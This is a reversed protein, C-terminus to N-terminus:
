LIGWEVNVNMLALQTPVTKNVGETITMVNTSMQLTSDDLMMTTLVVLEGACSKGDSGLQYGFHCSCEYSGASNTCFHECGNTTSSACEDIDVM